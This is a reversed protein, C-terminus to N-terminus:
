PHWTKLDKVTHYSVMRYSDNIMRGQAVSQPWTVHLAQAMGIFSLTIIGTMNEVSSWDNKRGSGGSGFGKPLTM